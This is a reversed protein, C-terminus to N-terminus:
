TKQTRIHYQKGLILIRYMISFLVLGIITQVTNYPISAIAVAFPYIPLKAISYGIIQFFGGIMAGILYNIYERGRKEAVWGTMWAMVWKLFFTPLIWYVYGGILDALAAGLGAALSGKQKGLLVVALFIMADGVHTYGNDIPSPIKISYVGICVLAGVLAIRTMDNAKM